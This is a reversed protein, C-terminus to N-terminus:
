VSLMAAPPAGPAAYESSRSSLARHGQLTALDAAARGSHWGEADTVRGANQAVLRDGFIIEM